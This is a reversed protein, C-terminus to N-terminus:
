FVGEIMLTGPGPVLRASARRAGGPRVILLVVGTAAVIGSAVFAVNAGTALRQATDADGRVTSDCVLGSGSRTCANLVDAAKSSAAGGLAAGAAFGAIGLGGVVLGPLLSGRAPAPAPSPSRPAPDAIAAPPASPPILLPVQVPPDGEVLRVPVSIPARGPATAKVTHAGPNLRIPAQLAAPAITVGDISVVPDVESAGRLAVIVAPIRAELEGLERAADVRAKKWPDPASDALVEGATRALLDRAALLDGASRKCRAMYLVFVPSHAAAEAAAFRRHAEAWDNKRYADLAEHALTNARAPDPTPQAHAISASATFLLALLPALATRPVARAM